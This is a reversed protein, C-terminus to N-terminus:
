PLRRWIEFNLYTAFTVWALYPALLLAASRRYRAFAVISAAIATWLLVIDLLALDPRQLGFFLYSWMGNLVLQVAFLATGVRKADGPADSEWFQWLAIGMMFYLATWVIPFVFGPPTLPSKDLSAYWEGPGFISGIIGPAVSLAVAVLFLLIRPAISPSPETRRLELIHSSM